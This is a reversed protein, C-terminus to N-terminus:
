IKGINELKLHLFESQEQELTGDDELPALLYGYFHRNDVNM